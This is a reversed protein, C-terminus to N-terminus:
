PRTKQSVASRKITDSFSLYFPPVYRQAGSDRFQHPLSRVGPNDVVSSPSKNSTQDGGETGPETPVPFTNTSVLPHLEGGGGGTHDGISSLCDYSTPFDNGTGFGPPTSFTTNPEM